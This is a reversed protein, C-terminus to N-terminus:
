FRNSRIRQSDVQKIQAMVTRAIQDPNADSRVNVSLNYNYVSGDSFTRNNIAKLRDVGFNQVASRSIVFEGPSLMAPVTDTNINKFMSSMNSKIAHARAFGGTAGGSAFYSPM